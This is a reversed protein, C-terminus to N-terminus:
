RNGALFAGASMERSNEPILSDIILYKGDSCKQDLSTQPQDAAHTATITCIKGNLTLKSKPFGAYAVVERALREAPKTGPTLTAMSKDLKETYTAGTDSQPTPTTSKVVPLLSIIANAGSKALKNYIQDKTETPFIDIHQSFYLPGSDMGSSLKMLSIGTHNVGDLIASEIPTSGRYLPLLSPHLNIIGTPEFLELVENPILINYAALIGIPPQDLNSIIPKITDILERKNNPTHLPINHQNALKIVRPIREKRSKQGPHYHTFIAKIPYGAAILSDLIPTIPESLGQALQENGLYIISPKDM